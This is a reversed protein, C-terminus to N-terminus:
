LGTPRINTPRIYVGGKESFPMLEVPVTKRIIKYPAYEAPLSAIAKDDNEAAVFWDGGGTTSFIFYCHCQM